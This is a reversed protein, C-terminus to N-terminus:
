KKREGESRERGSEGEEWKEREARAGASRAGALACGGLRRGARRAASQGRARACAAGAGQRTSRAGMGPRGARSAAAGLRDAGGRALWDAGLALEVSAAGQVCVISSVARGNLKKHYHLNIRGNRGGRM